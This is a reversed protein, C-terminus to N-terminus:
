NNQIKGPFVTPTMQFINTQIYNILKNMTTNVPADSLDRFDYSMLGASLIGLWGSPKFDPRCRCAILPIELKDAYELEKRCSKSKQYEPTMFFCIAASREVAEAM